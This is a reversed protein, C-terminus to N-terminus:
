KGEDKDKEKEGVNEQLRKEQQANLTFGSLVKEAKDAVLSVKDITADILANIVEDSEFSSLADVALARSSYLDSQLAAILKDVKQTKEWKEIQKKSAKM